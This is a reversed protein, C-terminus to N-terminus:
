ILDPVYEQATWNSLRLGNNKYLDADNDIEIFDLVMGSVHVTFLRFM